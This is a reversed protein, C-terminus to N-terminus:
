DVSSIRSSSTQPISSIDEGEYVDDEPDPEPPFQQKYKEIQENIVPMAVMFVAIVASIWFFVKQM